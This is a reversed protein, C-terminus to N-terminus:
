KFKTPRKREKYFPCEKKNNIQWELAEVAMELGKYVEKFNANPGYKIITADVGDSFIDMTVSVLLKKEYKKNM